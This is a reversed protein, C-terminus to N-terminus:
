TPEGDNQRTAQRDTRQKVGVDPTALVKALAAEDLLSKEPVEAFGTLVLGDNGSSGGDPKSPMSEPNVDNEDPIMKRTGMLLHGIQIM